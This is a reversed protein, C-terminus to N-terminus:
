SLLTLSKKPNYIKSCNIFSETIKFASYKHIATNNIRDRQYNKRIVVRNDGDEDNNEIM